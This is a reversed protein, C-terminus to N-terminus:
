HIPRPGLKIRVPGSDEAPPKDAVPEKATPGGTLEDLRAKAKPYRSAFRQYAETNEIGKRKIEAVVEDVRHSFNAVDPKNVYLISAMTVFAPFDSEDYKLGEVFRSLEQQSTVRPMTRAPLAILRPAPQSTMAYGRAAEDWNEVSYTVNGAADIDWVFLPTSMNYMPVFRGILEDKRRVMARNEDKLMAAKALASKQEGHSSKMQRIMDRKEAETSTEKAQKVLDSRIYHTSDVRIFEPKMYQQYFREYMIRMSPHAPTFDFGQVDETEMLKKIGRLMEGYIRTAVTGATGTLRVGNPGEFLVGFVNDLKLSGLTFHEREMTVTYDKGEIEFRHRYGGHEAEVDSRKNDVCNDIAQDRGQEARSDAHARESEMNVKWDEVAADYSSEADDREQKWDDLAQEFDEESEYDDREPKPNNGEWDEVTEADFNPDDSPDEYIDEYYDSDDFYDHVTHICDELAEDEDFTQMDELEIDSVDVKSVDIMEWFSLGNQQLWEKFQM